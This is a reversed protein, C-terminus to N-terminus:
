ANLEVIKSFKFVKALNEEVDKSFIEDGAMLLDDVHSVILGHLKGNIVYSFIAGESHVEHLGLKKLEDQLKLYFLRGGDLIGYAAKRLRWIKDTRAEEPPKVFIDRDLDM